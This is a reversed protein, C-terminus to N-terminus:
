QLKNYTSKDIAADQLPTCDRVEAKGNLLVDSLQVYAAGSPSDYVEIAILSPQKAMVAPALVCLGLVAL